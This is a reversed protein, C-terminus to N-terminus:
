CPPPEFGARVTVDCQQCIWQCTLRQRSCRQHSRLQRVAGCLQQATEATEVVAAPVATVARATQSPWQICDAPQQWCMSSHQASRRTISNPLLPHPVRSVRQRMPPMCSNDHSLEYQWDAAQDSGSVWGNALLWGEVLKDDVREAAPSRFFAPARRQSEFTLDAHHDAVAHVTTDCKQIRLLRAPAARADAPPYPVYM